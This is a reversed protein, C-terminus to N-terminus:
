WAKGSLYINSIVKPNLPMINKIPDYTHLLTNFRCAFMGDKYFVPDNSRYSIGKDDTCDFEVIDGEYIDTGDIDKYGTHLMINFRRTDTYLGGDLYDEHEADQEYVFAVRAIGDVDSSETDCGNDFTTLYHPVIMKHLRSDWARVKLQMM